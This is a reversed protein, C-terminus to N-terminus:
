EESLYNISDLAKLTMSLHREIKEGFDAKSKSEITKVIEIHEQIVHKMRGQKTIAKSGILITLNHFVDYSKLFINYKAIMFMTRHFEKDLQMFHYSNKEEMARNQKEIINKLKQIDTDEVNDFLPDKIGKEITARLLFIQKVEEQTHQKLRYGKRPRFEILDENILDYMAERLPTRSVDLQTALSQENIYDDSPFGDNLIIDKLTTYITDKLTKHKIGKIKFDNM